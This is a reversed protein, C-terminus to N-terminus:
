PSRLQPPSILFICGPGFFAFVHGLCLKLLFCLFHPVAKWPFPACTPPPFLFTDGFCFAFVPSPHPVPLCYSVEGLHTPSGVMKVSSATGKMPGLPPDEYSAGRSVLRCFRRGVWLNPPFFLFLLIFPLSLPVGPQYLLSEPTYLKRHPMSVHISPCLL